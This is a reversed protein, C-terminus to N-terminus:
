STALVSEPSEDKKDSAPGGKERKRRRKKPESVPKEETEVLHGCAPCRRIRYV